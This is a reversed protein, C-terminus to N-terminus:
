WCWAAPSSRRRARGPSGRSGRSLSQAVVVVTGDPPYRHARPGDDSVAPEGGLVALWEAASRPRFVFNTRRTEGMSASPEASYLHGPFVVTDDPM